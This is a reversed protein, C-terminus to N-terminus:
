PTKRWVKPNLSEFIVGSGSHFAAYEEAIHSPDIVEDKFKELAKEIAEKENKAEVTFSKNLDVRYKTVIM